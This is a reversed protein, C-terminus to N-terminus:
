STPGGAPHAQGGRDDARGRRAAVPQLLRGHLYGAATLVLGSVISAAGRRRGPTRMDRWVARPLTRYVYTRETALADASGVQGSIIAKSRGEAYCRKRFYTFSARAPTVRHHVLARPEYLITAQPDAQRLRIGLETEECGLPTSGIRGIGDSFGGVRDFVSRRFSMAAGIPNRVPQASTPLGEYSCGVVWDFEPPFWAPRGPAPWTPVAAGGVGQVTPEAYPALLHELWDPAGHADDDLFVVIDGRAARVGTNRAASLGRAGTNALVTVGDFTARARALLADNHDVVLIIEHATTRQHRVSAIAAVLDDWRELTYACIVVSAALAAPPTSIQAEGDAPRATTVPRAADVPRATAAPRATVIGVPHAQAPIVPAPVAATAGAAATGAAAQSPGPAPHSDDAGGPTIGTSATM